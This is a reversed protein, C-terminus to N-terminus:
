PDEPWKLSTSYTLAGAPCDREWGPVEDPKAFGSTFGPQALAAMISIDEITPFHRAITVARRRLSLPLTKDRAIEVLLGGAWLMARTREDPMTM